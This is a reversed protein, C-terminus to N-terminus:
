YLTSCVIRTIFILAKTTDKEKQEWVEEYISLIDDLVAELKSISTYSENNLDIYIVPYAMWDKELEAIALGEFLEQKGLFYDRLTSLLLSKGFRCPRAPFYPRVVSALQYVYQTKDVYVFNNTRLTEFDQIGLPLERLKNDM